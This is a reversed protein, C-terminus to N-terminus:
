KLQEETAFAWSSPGYNIENMISDHLEEVTDPDLTKGTYDVLIGLIISRQTAERDSM